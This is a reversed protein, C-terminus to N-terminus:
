EIVKYETIFIIKSENEDTEIKGTAKVTRGVLEILEQGTENDAVKYEDYYVDETSDDSVIEVSISVAIVNEDEDWEIPNVQGEITDELEEEQEEMEETEEDLQDQDDGNSGSDCFVLFSTFSLIIMGVFLVRMISKMTREKFKIKPKNKKKIVEILKDVLSLEAVDTM